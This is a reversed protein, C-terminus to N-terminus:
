QDTDRLRSIVTEIPQGVIVHNGDSTYISSRSNGADVVRTVQEPNVFVIDRFESLFEVYTAM